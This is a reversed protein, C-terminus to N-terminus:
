GGASSEGGKKVLRASASAEGGAAKTAKNRAKSEAIKRKHEETMPGRKKRTKGSQVFVSSTTNDAASYGLRVLQNDIEKVAERRQRLLDQIAEKRKAELQETLRLVEQVLDAM